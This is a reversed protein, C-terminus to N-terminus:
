HIAHSKGSVVSDFSRIAGTVLARHDSVGAGCAQLQLHAPGTESGQCRQGVRAPACLFLCGPGRSVRLRSNEQASLRHNLTLYRWLHGTDDMRHEPEM